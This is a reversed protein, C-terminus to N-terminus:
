EVDASLVDRVKRWYRLTSEKESGRPGGNHTRAIVEADAEAWAHPVYREMYARVVRRAYAPERCDEYCGGISPDFAVADRWYTYGIQLPGISRGDDGDPYAPRNLGGTEVVQIVDLIRERRTVPPGPAIAEDLPGLPLFVAIPLILKGIPLM